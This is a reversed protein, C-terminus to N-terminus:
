ARFENIRDPHAAIGRDGAAWNGAPLNFLVQKLENKRLQAKLDSIAYDYPFQYEVAKFGAAKALSFRQLFPVENFLLSLNAAFNPMWCGGFENNSKHKM